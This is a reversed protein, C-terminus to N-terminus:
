FLYVGTQFNRTNVSVLLNSFFATNFIGGCRLQTGVSGQPKDNPRIVVNTQSQQKNDFM